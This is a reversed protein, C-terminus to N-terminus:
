YIVNVDNKQPKGKTSRGNVIIKKRLNLMKKVIRSHDNALNTTEGIDYGLNYLQLEESCILKWNGYRISQVGQVSTSIASERVPKNSGKLLRVLSFSDEGITDSLELNLLDAITEMIDVQHVLQNCITGSQVVGPYRVIFPIRHGGEWVDGKYGRLPGSVFHGQEKLEEAGIYNGCGNDSTFFVITNNSIGTNELSELIRGIEYDTQVVFDAYQNNLRSRNKWEDSVALPTHPTTLALYIFFPDDSKAQENIIKITRDCITPLIAELNWNKCAPGQYSAMNTTIFKPNLFESPIGLTRDNEIFCFPPWNPVDTGFYYDFGVATPGGTISKSFTQSWVRQNEVTPSIKTKITTSKGEFSSFNIFNKLQDKKFPWNWGLHWKGIAFTKYGIEKVLGAVTTREPTILPEKWMGVIGKQLRSRWHYRGTLLAYRSPSSVASSSHADTFLMGESALRDINPTPIKGKSSNYCQVDGYGLDDAYIILINPKKSIQSLANSLTSFMVLLFLYICKFNM